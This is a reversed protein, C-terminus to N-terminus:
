LLISYIEEVKEWAATDPNKLKPDVVRFVKALSMTIGGALEPLRAELGEHYSLDMMPLRALSALIDAVPIEENLARFQHMSEQLGKTVPVDRYEIVDRANAKATAQAMLLLDYLKQNVFDDLRKLDSKDVDLSAAERFLREFQSIGMVM